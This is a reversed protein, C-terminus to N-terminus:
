DLIIGVRAAELFGGQLNAALVEQGTKDEVLLDTQFSGATEVASVVLPDPGLRVDERLQILFQGYACLGQEAVRNPDIMALDYVVRGSRTIIRAFLAPRAPLGRADVVLGTYHVPGAELRPWPTEPALGALRHRELPALIAGIGNPGLLAVRVLVLASGDEGYWPEVVQAANILADLRGGAAPHNEALQGVTAAANVQVQDLTERLRDAAVKLALSQGPPRTGDPKSVPPAEGLAYLWYGRWDVYGPPGPRQLFAEFSSAEGEGDAVSDTVGGGPPEGAGAEFRSMAALIEELEAVPLNEGDAKALVGRIAAVQAQWTELTQQDLAQREKTKWLQDLGTILSNRERYLAALRDKLDELRPYTHGAFYVPGQQDEQVAAQYRSKGLNLFAANRAQQLAYDQLTRELAVADRRLAELRQELWAKRQDLQDQWQRRDAMSDLWSSILGRAQALLAPARQQILMCAAPLALLAGTLVGLLFFGPFQRVKDRRKGTKTTKRGMM